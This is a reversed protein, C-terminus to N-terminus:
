DNREQNEPVGHDLIRDMVAEVSGAYAMGFKDLHVM